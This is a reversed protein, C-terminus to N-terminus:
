RREEEALEAIAAVDDGMIGIAGTDFARKTEIRTLPAWAWIEIGESQVAAVIEPTLDAFHHEIVTAGLARAQAILAAASSPGHEPNRDPALRLGPVAAAAAALVGHDFANVIDLALRGRRAIRDAVRQAVRGKEVGAQEKAELCLSIGNQEAFAFLEELAPVRAGAFAPSFWSGADLRAIDAWDMAIVPGQGSTTRDLTEDHMLVLVGDRSLQVDAEIIEAGLAVAREFAEMTQEPAGASHGRHAIIRRKLM